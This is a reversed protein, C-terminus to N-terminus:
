EETKLLDAATTLIEANAAPSIAGTDENFDGIYCFVFDEPNKNFQSDKMNVADEFSRLAEAHNRFMVPALYYDAKLDKATYLKKMEYDKTTNNSM